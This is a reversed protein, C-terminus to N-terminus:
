TDTGSEINCVHTWWTKGAGDKKDVGCADSTNTKKASSGVPEQSIKKASARCACSSVGFM